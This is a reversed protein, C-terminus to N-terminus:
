KVGELTTSPHICLFYLKFRKELQQVLHKAFHQCDAAVNITVFTSNLCKLNWVKLFHVDREYMIVCDELPFRCTRRFHGRFSLFRLRENLCGKNRVGRVTNLSFTRTAPPRMRSNPVHCSCPWVLMGRVDAVDVGYSKQLWTRHPETRNSM